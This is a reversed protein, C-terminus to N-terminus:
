FPKLQGNHDFEITRKGDLERHIQKHCNKCVAMLNDNGLRIEIDNYNQDTLPIIHHVTEAVGGCRECKFNQEQLKYDRANFWAKSNYFNQLQKSKAM